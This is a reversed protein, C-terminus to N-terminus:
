RTGRRRMQGSLGTLAVMGLSSRRNQRKNLSRDTHTSAASLYSRQVIRSTTSTAITLFLGVASAIKAKTRFVPKEAVGYAFRPLPQLQYVTNIDLITNIKATNLDYVYHLPQNVKDYRCRCTLNSRGICLHSYPMHRHMAQLPDAHHRTTIRVRSHYLASTEAFRAQKVSDFVGCLKFATCCSDTLVYLLSIIPDFDETTHSEFRWAGRRALTDDNMTVSRSPEQSRCWHLTTVCPRSQLTGSDTSSSEQQM